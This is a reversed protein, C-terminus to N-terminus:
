HGEPEPQPDPGSTPDHGEEIAKWVSLSDDDPAVATHREAGVPADYRSGMEPWNPADRLGAAAALAVLVAGVLAAFLWGSLAVDPRVGASKAVYDAVTTRLGTLAWIACAVEGLALLGAFGVLGRRVRGRTVLVVGWAALAAAGLAGALPVSRVATYLGAADARGIDAWPKFGAVAALAGALLAVLVIPGFRSAPKANDTM